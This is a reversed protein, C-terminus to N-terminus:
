TRFYELKDAGSIETVKEGHAVAQELWAFYQCLAIGDRIHCNIFGSVETTNKIAKQLAIPTLKFYIFLMLILLSLASLYHLLSIGRSSAQENSNLCEFLLQGDTIDM